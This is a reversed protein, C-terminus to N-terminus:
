KDQVCENSSQIDIESIISWLFVDTPWVTKGANQYDEQDTWHADM